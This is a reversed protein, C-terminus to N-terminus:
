FQMNLLAVGTSHRATGTPSYTTGAKGDPGLFVRLLSRNFKACDAILLSTLTHERRLRAILVKLRAQREALASRESEALRSLLGSLTLDTEPLGLITALERRLEQRRRETVAYAQAQEHIELLQQQLSEDDRKILFGRLADLRLLTAEIHRIDEDLVELLAAVRTQIEPDPRGRRLDGKAKALAM